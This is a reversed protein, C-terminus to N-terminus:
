LHLQNKLQFAKSVGALFERVVKTDSEKWGNRNFCVLDGIQLIKTVAVRTDSSVEDSSYKDLGDRLKNIKKPWDEFGCAGFGCEKFKDKGSISVLENFIKLAERQVKREIESIKRKPEEINDIVNLGLEKRRQIAKKKWDLANIDDDIKKCIESIKDMAVYHGLDAAERYYSIAEIEKGEEHLRYGKEFHSQAKKGVLGIFKKNEDLGALYSAENEAYICKVLEYHWYSLHDSCFPEPESDSTIKLKTNQDPQWSADNNSKLKIEKATILVPASIALCLFIFTNKM